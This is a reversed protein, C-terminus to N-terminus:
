YIGRIFSSFIISCSLTYFNNLLIPIFIQCYKVHYHMKSSLTYFVIFGIHYKISELLNPGLYLYYAVCYPVYFHKNEQESSFYSLCMICYFFMHIIPKHIKYVITTIESAIFELSLQMKKRNKGEYVNQGSSWM